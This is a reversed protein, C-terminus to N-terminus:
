PSGGPATVRVRVFRRGATGAPISATVSERTADIPNPPATVVDLNTWDNGLTDSWEVTFTAEGPATKRRPYTFLLFDGDRVLGPLFSDPRTADLRLAWELFNGRGDGDPDANPGIINTDGVGPWTLSKWDAFVAPNLGGISEVALNDYTAPMATGGAQKLVVTNFGTHVTGSTQSGLISFHTVASPGSGSTVTLLTDMRTASVLTADFVFRYTVSGDDALNFQTVKSGIDTYAGSTGNNPGASASTSSGSEVRAVNTQTSTSNDRVFTGYGKWAGVANAGAWNHDAIPNALQYFGARVIHTAPQTGTQRYDFSLRLTQGVQLTLAPFSRGIVENMLTGNETWALTGSNNSLSDGAVPAAKFWGGTGSDFTDTFIVGPPTGLVLLQYASTSNAGSSDTATLSFAHTGPQTPIGSFQGAPDLTLGAPLTSGAALSWTM